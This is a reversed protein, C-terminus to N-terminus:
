RGNGVTSTVSGVTAQQQIDNIWQQHDIGANAPAALGFLAAAFGTATIGAITAFVSKKM